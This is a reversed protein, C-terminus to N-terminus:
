YSKVTIDGTGSKMNLGFDARSVSGVENNVQGMGSTLDARMRLGKPLMVSADGTGANLVFDGKPDDSFKLAVRGNGSEVKGGGSIGNISIAGAGTRGEVHKFAGTAELSGAGVRFDLRGEIGNIVVAGAGANVVLDMQKPVQIDFDADCEEFSPGEIRFLVVDDASKDQSKEQIYSCKESFKKKVVTAIIRDTRDGVRVNIRGQVNDIQVKSVGAAQYEKIATNPDLSSTVAAWATNLAFLLLMTM